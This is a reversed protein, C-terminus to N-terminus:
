IFTCVSDDYKTAMDELADTSMRSVLSLMSCRFILQELITSWLQSTDDRGGHFLAHRAVSNRTDLLM